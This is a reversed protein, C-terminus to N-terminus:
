REGDKKESFELDSSFSPKQSDLPMSLTRGKAIQDLILKGEASM